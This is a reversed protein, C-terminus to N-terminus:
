DCQRSRAALRSACCGGDNQEFAHHSIVRGDSCKIGAVTAWGDFDAVDNPAAM